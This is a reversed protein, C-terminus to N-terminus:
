LQPRRHRGTLAGVSYAARSGRPAAPMLSSGTRVDMEPIGIGAIREQKPIDPSLTPIGGAAAHALPDDQQAGFGAQNRGRQSLSRPPSPRHDNEGRTKM